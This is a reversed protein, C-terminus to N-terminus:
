ETEAFAEAPMLLMSKMFERVEVPRNRYSRKIESITMRRTKLQEEPKTNNMLLTAFKRILKAQKGNM